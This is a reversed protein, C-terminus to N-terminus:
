EGEMKAEAKKFDMCGKFHYNEAHKAKECDSNNECDNCSREMTDKLDWHWGLTKITEISKEIVSYDNTQAWETWKESDSRRCFLQYRKPIVTSGIPRM